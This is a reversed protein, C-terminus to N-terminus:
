DITWLDTIMIMWTTLGIIMIQIELIMERITKMTKAKINVPLHVATIDVINVTAM